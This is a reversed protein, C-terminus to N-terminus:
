PHNCINLIINLSFGDGMIAMDPTFMGACLSKNQKSIRDPTIWLTICISCGVVLLCTFKSLRSYCVHDENLSLVWFYQDVSCSAQKWKKNCLRPNVSLEHCVGGTPLCSLCSREMGDPDAVRQKSMQVPLDGYQKYPVMRWWGSLHFSMFCLIMAWEVHDRFPM